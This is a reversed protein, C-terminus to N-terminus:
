IPAHVTHTTSNFGKEEMFGIGVEKERPLTANKRQRPCVWLHESVDELDESQLCWGGAGRSRVAMCLSDLAQTNLTCVCSSPTLCRFQVYLIFLRHRPPMLSPLGCCFWGRLCDGTYLIVRIAILQKRESLSPSAPLSVLHGGATYQVGMSMGSIHSWGLVSLTDWFLSTTYFHTHNLLVLSTTQKCRCYPRHLKFLSIHFYAEHDTHLIVLLSKQM